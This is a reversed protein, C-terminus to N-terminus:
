DIESRPHLDQYAKLSESYGVFTGKRASLDLKM